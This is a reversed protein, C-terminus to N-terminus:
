KVSWGTILSSMCLEDYHCAHKEEKNLALNKKKMENKMQIVHRGTIVYM